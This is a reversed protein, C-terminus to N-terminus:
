RCYAGNRHQATDFHFHDAHLRNAAPGLVTGFTGCADAHMQRLHRGHTRSNWGNLVTIEGGNKLGFAAIDIARGRGHESLRRGSQNNMPRCTYDAAVRLSAIGGGESALAPRASREVWRLLAGATPCDMVSATSLSVGGVSKIRVPEKVGCDGADNIPPITEGVIQPNGCVSGRVAAAPASPAPQAAPQARVQPLPAPKAPVMRAVLEAAAAEVASVAEGTDPAAAPPAVAPAVSVITL